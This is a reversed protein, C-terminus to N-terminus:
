SSRLDNYTIATRILGPGSNRNAKRTSNAFELMIVIERSLSTVTVNFTDLRSSKVSSRCQHKDPFLEGRGWLVQKDLLAFKQQLRSISIMFTRAPTLCPVSLWIKFSRDDCTATSRLSVGERGPECSHEDLENLQVIMLCSKFLCRTCFQANHHLNFKM